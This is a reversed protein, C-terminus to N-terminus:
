PGGGSKKGLEQGARGREKNQVGLEFRERRVARVKSAIAPPHRHLWLIRIRGSLHGAEQHGTELAM